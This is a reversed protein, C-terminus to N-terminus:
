NSDVFAHIVESEAKRLLEGATSDACDLRSAIDALSGSRPIEYYGVDIAANLAARQRATLTTAAPRGEYDHVAEIRADVARTLRTYFESLSDSEGVAEFRVGGTEFFEVPPVFVVSSRSLLDLLSPEFEYRTQEIFAYTGDADALLHFTTIADLPDLVGTVAEPPGDFWSLTMMSSLPGWMLLKAHTVATQQILQRHIPHANEEPYTVSFTARKM